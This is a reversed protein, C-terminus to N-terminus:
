FYKYFFFIDPMFSAKYKKEVVEDVDDKSYSIRKAIYTCHIFPCADQKTFNVALWIQIM